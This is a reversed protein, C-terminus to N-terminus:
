SAKSRDLITLLLLSDEIARLWHNDASAIHILEGASLECESEGTCFVVNGELCHLTIEGRLEHWSVDKGAPLFWRVVELSDSEILTSAYHNSPEARPPRVGIVKIPQARSLMMKNKEV